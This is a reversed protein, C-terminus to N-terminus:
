PRSDGNKRIPHQQLWEKAQQRLAAIDSHSLHSELNAIRSKGTEDGGAQAILSWFYAKASDQPVGRGASYYAALAVQAIVNGQEAAQTFWRGAEAYDQPVDQGTAFHTGLAFEAAPDGQEALRRLGDVGTASSGNNSASLAEVQAASKSPTAAPRSTGSHSNDWTGLLWFIAILVTIGASILLGNRSPSFQPLSLSAPTGIALEDDVSTGQGDLPDTRAARETMECVIAALRQLVIEDDPRFHNAEPSFVEILGIVENASRIPAAIMSRIGLARCSEIDVLPNTEADKCHLLSGTRVCEGSFGSGVQINAGKPPADSGATARCTMAAGNSLAIAVGSARTLGKARTAVLELAADRDTGLSRVERKIADLAELVTTYDTAPSAPEPESAVVESICSSQTEQKVVREPALVLDSMSTGRNLLLWSGLEHRTSTSMQGFRIGARGSAESWAVTGRVEAYTNPNSLDLRFAVPQGVTLPWLAQIGMGGECIDLIENLEAVRGLVIEGVAYSVAPPALRHSHRRDPQISGWEAQSPNPSRAHM